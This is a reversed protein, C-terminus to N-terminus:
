GHSEPSEIGKHEAPNQILELASQCSAASSEYKVFNVSRADTTKAFIETPGFYAEEM